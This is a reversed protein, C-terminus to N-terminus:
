VGVGGRWRGAGGRGHAAGGDDLQQGAARSCYMPHLNLPPTAATVPSQRVFVAIPSVAVPVAHIWLCHCCSTQGSLADSLNMRALEGAPQQPPQAAETTQEDDESNSQKADKSDADAAAAPQAAPAVTVPLIAPEAAATARGGRRTLRWGCCARQLAGRVMGSRRRLQADPLGLALFMQCWILELLWVVWTGYMYVLYQDTWSRCCMIHPPLNCDTLSRRCTLLATPQCGCRSLIM